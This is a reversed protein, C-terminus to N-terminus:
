LEYNNIWIVYDLGDVKHDNNFDGQSVSKEESNMGYNDVWIVYDLGDVKGDGNADGLKSPTISPSPSISPFTTPISSPSQTPTSTQTPYPTFVPSATPLPTHNTHSQSIAVDDVYISVHSPSISDTYNNVSWQIPTDTLATHASPVDFIKQGDQWIAVRGSNGTDLRYFGEILFWRDRPVAIPNTQRYIKKLSNSDPRYYLMLSVPNTNGATGADLSWMPTSVNSSSLSKWQWINWWAGPNINSPIYYWASFYNEKTPLAKWRFLYAAQSGGASLDIELAVAYKGSHVPFSVVTAKGSVGQRIFDGGGDSNWDSINGSEFGTSWLVSSQAYSFSPFLYICLFLIFSISIFVKRIYM